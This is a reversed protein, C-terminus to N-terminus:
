WSTSDRRWDGPIDINVQCLGAFGPALGSFSVHASAGDITATTAAVTYSLPTSPAAQRTPVSPDVAGQGTLYVLIASGAAAPNDPTNLSFDVNRVAGHNTGWTFIYPAVAAVTFTVPASGGSGPPGSITFWYTGPTLTAPLQLNWQTPSQYYVGLYDCCSFPFLTANALVAGSPEVIGGPPLLPFSGAVYESSALDLGFVAVISGPAVPGSAFTADNVIGGPNIQPYLTGPLFSVPVERMDGGNTTFVYDWGDQPSSCGVSQLILQTPTTGTWDGTLCAAEEVDMQFSMPQSSTLSLQVTTPPSGLPPFRFAVAAPDVNFPVDNQVTLSV